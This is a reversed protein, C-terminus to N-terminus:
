IVWPSQFLKGYHKQVIQLMRQRGSINMSHVIVGDIPWVNNEEMWSIVDYGTKEGDDNGLTQQITLDHDLSAKTIEGTSLLEIAMEYTKVWTADYIDFNMPNRVDDLWLFM